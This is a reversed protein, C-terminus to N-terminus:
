LKCGHRKLYDKMWHKLEAHQQSNKLEPCKDLTEEFNWKLTRAAHMLVLAAARIGGSSFVIYRGRQRAFERRLADMDQESLTLPEVPIRRYTFGADKFKDEQYDEIELIKRLDIVHPHPEKANPIIDALKDQSVAKINQGKVNVELEM